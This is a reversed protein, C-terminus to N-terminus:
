LIALILCTEQATGTVNGTLNAIITGASFNGSSDRAVIASAANTSAATTASNAVKGATTITALKTDAIAASPDIDTNTILSTSLVGGASNHVIGTSNLAAITV